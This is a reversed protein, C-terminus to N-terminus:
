LQHKTLFVDPHCTEKNPNVRISHQIVKNQQVLHKHLIHNENKELIFIERKFIPSIKTLTKATINQPNFNSDRGAKSGEWGLMHYQVEQKNFVLIDSYHCTAVRVINIIKLTALFNKITQIRQSTLGKTPFYCIIDCNHSFTELPANEWPNYIQQIEM